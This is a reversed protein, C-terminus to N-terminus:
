NEEPDIQERIKEREFFYEKLVTKIEFAHGIVESVLMFYQAKEDYRDTPDFSGCTFPNITCTFERKGEFMKGMDWGFNVDLHWHWFDAEEPVSIKLVDYALQVPHGPFIQKIRASFKTRMEELITKAEELKM